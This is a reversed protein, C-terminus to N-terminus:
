EPILLIKLKEWSVLPYLCVKVNVNVSQFILVFLTGLRKHGTPYWSAKVTLKKTGPSLIPYEKM